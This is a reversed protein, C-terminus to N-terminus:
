SKGAKKYVAAAAIALAGIGVLAYKIYRLKREEEDEEDDSKIEGRHIAISKLILNDM